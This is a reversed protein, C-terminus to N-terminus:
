IYESAMNVKLILDRLLNRENAAICVSRSETSMMSSLFIKLDEATAKVPEKLYPLLDRMKSLGELSLTGPYLFLTLCKLNFLPKVPQM